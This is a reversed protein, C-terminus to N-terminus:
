SYEKYRPRDLRKAIGELDTKFYACILGLLSKAKLLTPGKIIARKFNKKGEEYEENILNKRGL